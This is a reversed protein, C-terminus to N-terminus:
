RQGYWADPGEQKIDVTPRSTKDPTPYRSSWQEPSYGRDGDSVTCCLAPTQDLAVFAYTRELVDLNTGAM